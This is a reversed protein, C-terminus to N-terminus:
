VWLLRRERVFNVLRELVIPVELGQQAVIMMLDLYTENPDDVESWYATFAWPPNHIQRIRTNVQFVVQKMFEIRERRDLTSLLHFIETRDDLNDIERLAELGM